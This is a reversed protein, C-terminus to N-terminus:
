KPQYFAQAPDDASLKGSEILAQRLIYGGALTLGGAILTRLMSPRRDHKRSLLSPLNLLLPAIIGGIMTWTRLRDGHLGEYMPKGTTGAYSKFHLLVGLEAIGAIAELKELKHQAAGGQKDLCLAISNIACSGAIGSAVSMAPIHYKGKGWIPIATASLLVGTYGAIFMGFLAQMPAVIPRPELRAVWQPLINDRALQAVANLGAFGSFGVLGWVGLSMPSKIKAIRMMHHFREPRGLHSILLAPCVAALGLSLYRSSRELPTDGSRQSLAALMGSGGAIGGLFLYTIVNWEWHPKKLLPRNFYSVGPARGDGSAAGAFAEDPLPPRQQLESM